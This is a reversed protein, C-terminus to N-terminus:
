VSHSPGLTDLGLAALAERTKEVSTHHIARLGMRSGAEVLLARDDLYAIQNPPAQALDIALRYIDPDPKRMGVYCSTVFFDVFETLSFKRIRYENLERGENSVVGVKLKNLAKVRRVLDLMDPYPQSQAFAFAKYEERTFSRPEYFV